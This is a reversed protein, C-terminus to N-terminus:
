TVCLSIILTERGLAQDKSLGKESYAEVRRTSLLHFIQAGKKKLEDESHSTLEALYVNTCREWDSVERILRLLDFIAAEWISTVVTPTQKM